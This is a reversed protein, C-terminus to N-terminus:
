QYLVAPFAPLDQFYFLIFIGVATKALLFPQEIQLPIKFRKILNNDKFCNRNFFIM